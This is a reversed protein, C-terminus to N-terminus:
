RIGGLVCLVPLPFWWRVTRRVRAMLSLRVPPLGCRWPCEGIHVPLGNIPAAFAPLWEWKPRDGVRTKLLGWTEASM